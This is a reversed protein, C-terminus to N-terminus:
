LAAGGDGNVRIWRSCLGVTIVWNTTTYLPHITSAAAM